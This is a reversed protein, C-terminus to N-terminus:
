GTLSYGGFNKGLQQNTLINDLIYKRSKVPLNGFVQNVFNFAAKAGLSKNAAGQLASIEGSEVTKALAFAKFYPDKADFKFPIMKGQIDIAFPKGSIMLSLADRAVDEETKGPQMAATPLRGSTKGVKVVVAPYTRGAVSVSQKGSRDFTVAGVSKKSEDLLREMYVEGETTGKSGFYDQRVQEQEQESLNADNAADSKPDFGEPSTPQEVATIRSGLRKVWSPPLKEKDGYKASALEVLAMQVEEDWVGRGDLQRSGKTTRPTINGEIPEGTETAAQKGSQATLKEGAMRKADQLLTDYEAYEARVKALKESKKTGAATVSSAIDFEQKDPDEKGTASMGGVEGEKRIPEKMKGRRVEGELVYLSGAPLLDIEAQNKPVAVARGNFNMGRMPQGDPTMAVISGSKTVQFDLPSQPDISISDTAGSKPATNTMGGPAVATGSPASMSFGTDNSQDQGPMTGGSQLYIQMAAANIEEPSAARFPDSSLKSEATKYAQQYLQTNRRQILMAQREQAAQGQRQEQADGREIAAQERRRTAILQTPDRMASWIMQDQSNKLQQKAQMKQAPSMKPDADIQQSDSAMKKLSQGVADDGASLTELLQGRTRPSLNETYEKQSFRDSAPLAAGTVPDQVVPMSAGSTGQMAPGEFTGVVENNGRTAGPQAPPAAPAANGSAAAANRAEAAAEMSPLGIAARRANERAYLNSTNTGAPSPASAAGAARKAAAENIQRDAAAWAQGEPSRRQRELRGAKAQASNPDITVARGGPGVNPAGLISTNGTSAPTMTPASPAPAMPAASPAMPRNSRSQPASPPLPRGDAGVSPLTGAATTTPIPTLDANSVSPRRETRAPAPRNQQEYPVPAQYTSPAAAQESLSPIQQGNINLLEKTRNGARAEDIVGSERRESSQGKTFNTGDPNQFGTEGANKLDVESGNAHRLVGDAPLSPASETGYQGLTSPDLRFMDRNRQRVTEKSLAM